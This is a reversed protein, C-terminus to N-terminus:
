SRNRALELIHVVVALVVGVFALMVDIRVVVGVVVGILLVQGVRNLVSFIVAESVVFVLLRELRVPVPNFVFFLGFLERFKRM